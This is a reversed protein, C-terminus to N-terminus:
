RISKSGWLSRISDRQYPWLCNRWLSREACCLLVCMCLSTCVPLFLCIFLHTNLFNTFLLITPFFFIISHFHYYSLFNQPSYLFDMKQQTCWMEWCVFLSFRTVSLPATRWFALSLYYNQVRLDRKKANILLQTTLMSHSIHLYFLSISLNIGVERQWAIDDSWMFTFSPQLYLATM